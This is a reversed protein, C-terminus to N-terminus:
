GAAEGVFGKIIREEARHLIGSATSQNVDLAAALEVLTCGRPSDYYGREVAETVFEWQRDTLLDTMDTSQTVSHIEFTIGAAALERTFESLQDHSGTLENFVWGERIITPSSSLPGDRRRVERHIESEPTKCQFLLAEGDADLVELSRVEPTEDLHRLLAEPDTTEAEVVARMGEETLRSSLIRFEEDPHETSYRILHEAPSKWKLRARPMPCWIIQRGKIYVPIYKRSTECGISREEIRHNACRATVFFRSLYCPRTSDIDFVPHVLPIQPGVM